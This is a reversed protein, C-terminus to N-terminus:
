RVERGHPSADPAAVDELAVQAVLDAVETPTETEAVSAVRGISRRYLGARAPVRARANDVLLLHGGEPLSTLLARLARLIEADSFYLRRLLNAVKIADPTPDDWTQFVDHVAFTVLEDEAILKQASPNLLLVDQGCDPHRASLAILPSCLLRVGRSISPWAVLHRSAVLVCAGAHDFFLVTRGIRTATIYLYLDAIVYAAFSPLRGTLDVSTSGDSAGIDVITARSVDVHDLLLADAAPHRNSGTIKITGGVSFASMARRFAEATVDGDLIVKPDSWVF